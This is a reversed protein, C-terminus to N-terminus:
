TKVTLACVVGTPEFKLEATGLTKLARELLRSGFGPREPAQVRPGGEERWVLALTGEKCQWRVEVTGRSNSLAGYKVANTALEHLAMTLLLSRESSLWVDDPGELRLRERFQQRFPGVARAVVDCLRARTWEKNTLLDHAEALSRLRAIFSSREQATATKLSQRAMGQVTALTNKIRHKMEGLVLTQQEEARRRETIDRAIKSAAVVRGRDNRVPSVSLSVDILRGDKARRVTEYHDIAAGTRIKRIITTSDDPRDDPVLMAVPQGIAEEPSYGFLREAGRNWSEIIGDLSESIIADDSSEVISALRQAHEEARKRETIDRAIKSAAIIRGQEDSVPSVTLSVDVLRGDKARRVTEYHDVAEGTRIRMIISKADEPRDAPVLMAVPQGIAEEPSYGFLREAGRNWSEIIGDLSESIIADDSSEVISALRRAHEEARKRETIDVLLNVAGVLEGDEDFLPTPYPAFTVRTGDPREAIAEKGRVARKERITIAMPCEGHAMSRGDMWFLKWSGCWESNGLEPRRGWLAVAAENYYTIHGKADTLYVAAPLEDLVRRFALEESRLLPQAALTASLIAPLSVDHTSSMLDWCEILGAAPDFSRAAGPALL